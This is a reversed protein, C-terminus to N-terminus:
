LRRHESSLARAWTNWASRLTRRPRSPWRGGGVSGRDHARHRRRAAPGHAASVDLRIQEGRRHPFRAGRRDLADLGVHRHAPLAALLQGAVARDVAHDARQPTGRQVVLVGRQRPGLEGGRQGVRARPQHAEADKRGREAADEDSPGLLPHRHHAVQRVSVREAHAYPPHQALVRHLVARGGLPQAGLQHLVQLPAPRPELPREIKAAGPAVEPAPHQLRGRRQRVAGDGGVRADRPADPRGGRHPRHRLGQPVVREGDDNRTMPHDAARTIQDAVRPLAHLELLM